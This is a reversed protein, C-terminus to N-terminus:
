EDPPQNLLAGLVGFGILALVLLSLVTLVDFGQEITVSITLGALLIVFALAVALIASQM